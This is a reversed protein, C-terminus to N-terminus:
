RGHGGFLAEIFEEDNFLPIVISVRPAVTVPLEKIDTRQIVPPPDVGNARSSVWLRPSM